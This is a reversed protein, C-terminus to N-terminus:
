GASATFISGKVTIPVYNSCLGDPPPASNCAIYIPPLTVCTMNNDFAPLLTQLQGSHRAMTYYHQMALQVNKWQLTKRAFHFFDGSKKNRDKQSITDCPLPTLLYLVSYLPKKLENEERQPINPCLAATLKQLGQASFFFCNWDKIWLVLSFCVTSPLSLTPHLNLDHSHSHKTSPSTPIRHTQSLDCLFSFLGRQMRVRCHGSFADSFVQLCIWGEANRLLVLYLLM